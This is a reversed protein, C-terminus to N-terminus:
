ARTHASFFEQTRIMARGYVRESAKPLDRLKEIKRHRYTLYYTYVYMEPTHNPNVRMKM